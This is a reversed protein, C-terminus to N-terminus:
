WALVRESLLLQISGLGFNWTEILTGVTTYNRGKLVAKARAFGSVIDAVSLVHINRNASKPVIMLLDFGSQQFRQAQHVMELQGYRKANKDEPLTCHSIKQYLPHDVQANERRLFDLAVQGHYQGYCRPRYACVRISM